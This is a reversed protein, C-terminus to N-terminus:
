CWVGRGERGAMEEGDGVEGRFLERSEDAIGAGVFSGDLGAFHGWGQLVTQEALGDGEHEGFSRRAGSDGGFGGDREHVAM